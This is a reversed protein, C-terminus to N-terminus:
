EFRPDCLHGRMGPRVAQRDDVVATSVHLRDEGIVDLHADISVVREFHLSAHVHQLQAPLKAMADPKAAVAINLYPFATVAGGDAALHQALQVRGLSAPENELAIVRDAAGHGPM